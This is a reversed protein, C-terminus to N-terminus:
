TDFIDKAKVWSQNSKPYGRWHVLHETRDGKGRKEAIYAIKFLEPKTVKSLEWSYFSGEIEDGSDIESIKYVIQPHRIVKTVKFIEESWNWTHGKEFRKKERSIRVYDGENFKPVSKNKNKFTKGYLNKYVELVRDPQSAEHPSM